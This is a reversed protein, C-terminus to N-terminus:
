GRGTRIRRCAAKGRADIRRFGFAHRHDRGAAIAAAQQRRAGVDIQQEQKGVLLGGPALRDRFRDEIAEPVHPQLDPVRRARDVFADALGLRVHRDAGRDEFRAEQVAVARQEVFQDLAEVLIDHLAGAGFEDGGLEGLALVPQAAGALRAIQDLGIHLVALAAQAVQVRQEPDAFIDIAHAIDLFQDIVAHEVLVFQLSEAAALIEEPRHATVHMEHGARGSSRSDNSM